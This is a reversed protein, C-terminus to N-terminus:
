LEALQQYWRRSLAWHHPAPWLVACTDALGCLGLWAAKCALLMHLLEQTASKRQSGAGRMPARHAHVHATGRGAAATSAPRGWAAGGAGDLAQHGADGGSTAPERGAAYQYGGPGGPTGTITCRWTLAQALCNQAGACVPAAVRATYTEGRPLFVQPPLLGWTADGSQAVRAPVATGQADTLTV